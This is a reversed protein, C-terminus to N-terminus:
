GVLIMLRAFTTALLLISLLSCLVYKSVVVSIIIIFTVVLDDNSVVNAISILNLFEKPLARKSSGQSANVVFVLPLQRHLNHLILLFVIILGTNLEFYQLIEPLVVLFIYHIHDVDLVINNESLM